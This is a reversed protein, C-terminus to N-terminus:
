LTKNNSLPFAKSCVGSQKIIPKSEGRLLQNSLGVFSDAAVQANWETVITEYACKGIKSCIDKHDLLFTIKQYLDDITDYLFGNKGNEILFPASGISYHAIPACASNMAENLVAGWGEQQDSTFLHIETSDMQKRVDDPHLAGLLRVCSELAYDKVQRSIEDFMEGNGIMTLSFSYGATSLRKAIAIAVEPHKWDIFRGVWILSNTNKNALLTEISAHVYTQPFYGWKFCKDRYMLFKSYDGATFASACLMYVNQSWCNKWRWSLFRYPYKLLENGRKLPREAYRFVIKHNKLRPVILNNPASGIIVVDANDIFKLYKIPEAYFSESSVVYPPYESLLISKNKKEERVKRTEIFCFDNGILAFMSDSFPKQHRNFYNSIFCVSLHPFFKRPM